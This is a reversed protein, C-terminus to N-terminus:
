LLVNNLNLSNIGTLSISFDATADADNNGYLIHSIQDFYLDGRHVFSVPPVSGIKLSTFANNGSKVTDADIVSLDIKDKQVSSFDTIVDRMSANIGSEAVAKFKFVDAGIGGTLIDKGLGGMLIDDGLGGLVRDAGTDGILINAASNGVVINNGNNGLGNVAATGILTLNEFNEDLTYSIASYVKDIESILSSAEILVDGVNDVYYRDNGLGGEMIDVGSGGNLIDNGSGGILEDAGLQGKLDDNGIGGLLLTDNAGAVLIDNGNGGYIVKFNVSALSDSGDNAITNTGSLRGDVIFDTTGQVQQGGLLVTQTDTRELIRTWSDADVSDTIQRYYDMSHNANRANYDLYAISFKSKYLHDPTDLTQNGAFNIIQGPRVNTTGVLNPQDFLLPGPDQAIEIQTIRNDQAFDKRETGIPIGLTYWPTYPQGFPTAAFTVAQYQSGSHQSMYELAMAGGMSHGTVYVKSIGNSAVYADFASILPSLLAYYHPMNPWQDQDPHTLDSPDNPNIVGDKGSDNTGRFSLVVADGCRKVCAAANGNIFFGDDFMSNAITQGNVVSTVAVAPALNLPMWGQDLLSVAAEDANTSVDNILTNESPELHYAAKAFDAMTRMMGAQEGGAVSKEVDTLQKKFLDSATPLAPLVEVGTFGLLGWVDNVQNNTNLMKAMNM